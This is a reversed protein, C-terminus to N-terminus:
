FRRSRTRQLYIQITHQTANGLFDESLLDNSVESLGYYYRIGIPGVKVGGILGYDFDHIADKDFTGYGSGFQGDFQFNANLPIAGYGGIEVSFFENIKYGYVVPFELYIIRYTITGDFVGLNNPDYDAKGGKSSFAIEPKLYTNDSLPISPAFGIHLGVRAKANETDSPSLYSIGIGKKFYSFVKAVEGRQATLQLSVILLFLTGIKRKM